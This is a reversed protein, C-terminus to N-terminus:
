KSNNKFDEIAAEVLQMFSLSPGGGMLVAVWGSERIEQESAGSDFAAKVHYSVCWPCHSEVSLAVAIIEKTKKDLAGPKEVAELLELFKGIENPSTKQWNGLSAYFEDLLGKMDEKESM